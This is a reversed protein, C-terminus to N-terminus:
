EINNFDNEKSSKIEVIEKRTKVLRFCPIDLLDITRDESQV